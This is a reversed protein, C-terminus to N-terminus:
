PITAQGGPSIYHNVHYSPLIPFMVGDYGHWISGITNSFLEPKGKNSDCAFMLGLAMKYPLNVTGYKLVADGPPHVFPIFTTLVSWGPTWGLYTSKGTLPPTLSSFFGHGWFYAGHLWKQNALFTLNYQLVATSGMVHDEDDVFFGLDSLYKVSSDWSVWTKGASSGNGAWYAYVTNPIKFKRSPLTSGWWAPLPLGDDPELWKGYDNKDLGIKDALVEISSGCVTAEAQGGHDRKVDWTGVWPGWSWRGDPDFAGVPQNLVFCYTNIGGQEEAPDTNLFRGTEPHYYRYGYYYLGSEQDLYKSSFWFHFDNVMAGTAVLTNGYADFERHAVINGDGDAYDTINGNADTFPYYTTGNRTVSLLGGIGGAGQLSGSLDIGWVYVNTTGDSSIEQVLNWGDWIFTNTTAGVVKQYRRSQYDYKYEAVMGSCSAGSLQNEGNWSYAFVSDNTMNGDDDYALTRTGGNVIQSYQNLSNATYTHTISNSTDTIRNGIPDLNWVFSNASMQASILESRPNYGFSNTAVASGSDIRQTRRGLSDNQYDFKSVTVGNTQNDVGTLLNRHDEYSRMVQITGNEWGSLLDSNPVFSYAWSNSQGGALSSLSAFRGEGSYGYQVSYNDGATFGTSRGFSDYSREIVGMVNTEAALQLADNYTFQRTGQGDTITKQQGLRNFTFHIDPTADSYDINTMAGCCNDYRYTTTLGRAWTRTALKGDGTYTYTPGTNDAYLKNTLLGTALDYLWATKDMSSKLNALDAYSSIVNTGRYTYMACMRGFDDFDYAVPYTAGWTGVVLGKVDYATYVTNGLADTTSIRRGTASDYAYSTTNSAADQTWDVQGLSNYHMTSTGTRPDTVGTQREL